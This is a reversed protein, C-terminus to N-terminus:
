FVKLDSWGHVAADNLVGWLLYVVVTILFWFLAQRRRDRLAAVFTLCAPLLGAVAAVTQLALLGSRCEGECLLGKTAIALWTAFLSGLVVFAAGLIALASSEHKQMM